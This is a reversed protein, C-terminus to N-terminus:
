KINIMRTEKTRARSPNTEILGSEIRSDLINKIAIHKIVFLTNEFSRFAGVLVSDKRIDARIRERINVGASDGSPNMSKVM